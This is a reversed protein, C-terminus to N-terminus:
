SRASSRIVPHNLCQTILTQLESFSLKELGPYARAVFYGKPLMAEQLIARIHRKVQNRVVARKSLKTDVIVTARLEAQPLFYLTFFGRRIREGKRFVTLIDKNTHLRNARPFV